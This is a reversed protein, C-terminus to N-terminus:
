LNLNRVHYVPAIDYNKALKLQGAYDLEAECNGQSSVLAAFSESTYIEGPPTIPEIRAARIVYKGCFDTQNVIPDHYSFVPGADLSIRIDLDGPLGHDEWKTTKVVHQFDIACNLASRFCNFVIFLGDGSTKRSIVQSKYKKLIAAVEPLCYQSFLLLQNEDMKSYNRVDAFLMSYIERSPKTDTKEGHSIIPVSSSEYISNHRITIVHTDTDLWKARLRATGDMFMDAFEFNKTNGVSCDTSLEFVRSAQEIIQNFRREWCTDSLKSTIMQRMEIVSLPLVINVESSEQKRMEEAFIIDSINLLSTYAIGANVKDLYEALNKRIQDENKPLFQNSSGADHGSLVVVHPLPFCDDISRLDDGIGGILFRAQRRMSSIDRFNGKALHTAKRYWKEAEGKHNLILSAEGLAAYIWYDSIQKQKEDQETKELCLARVKKALDASKDKQGCFLALTAANIGNYCAADADRHENAIQYAENYYACAKAFKKGQEAKDKLSVGMDKYTRGLLGLTEGDRLGQEYLELIIQKGRYIAGSQVLALGLLQRLRVYLRQNQGNLLHMDPHRPFLKLGKSLVDYALLPEGVKIIRQALLPYIDPRSAWQKRNHTGWIRNLESLSIPSPAKLRSTIQQLLQGSATAPHCEPHRICYGLSLICKITEKATNRDYEKESDPLENYKVLCPHKKNDGDRTSGYKWGEAMRQEAWVDHVNEALKETLKQLSENIEIHSTGIPSPKYTM